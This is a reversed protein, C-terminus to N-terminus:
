DRLNRTRRETLLRTPREGAAMADFLDGRNLGLDELRHADLALLNQLAQRQARKARLKAFWAVVARVPNISVAAASSREGSLVLAM